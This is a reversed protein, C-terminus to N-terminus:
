SIPNPTPVEEMEVLPKEIKILPEEMEVLPEEIKVYRNPSYESLRSREEMAAYVRACLEEKQQKKPLSEDPFFPGDLYVTSKVGGFLKRKKYTATFTFVPKKTDVPFTMSVASFPRVGTYLPWIHAEPFIVVVDGREARTRVASFFAKKTELSDPLPMGGLDEVIRRLFPISVADRNVVLYPKKPFAAMSPTFADGALRTHNGYLFYGEKRYPRLKERGVIKQGYSFKLFLFAVPTAVVHHLVWAVGRRLPNKPLYNFHPPLPKATINTGAFDDNVPDTYYFVKEKM